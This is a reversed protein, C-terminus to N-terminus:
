FLLKIEQVLLPNKKYFKCNTEQLVHLVNRTYSVFMEMKAIAHFILESYNKIHSSINITM